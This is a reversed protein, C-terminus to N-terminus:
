RISSFKLTNSKARSVSSTAAISARSSPALPATVQFGTPSGQLTHNHLLKTTSLVCSSMDEENIASHSTEFDLLLHFASSAPPTTLTILCSPLARATVLGGNIFVGGVGGRARRRCRHHLRGGRRAARERPTKEGERKEEQEDVQRECLRGRKNETIAVITISGPFHRDVGDVGLNYVVLNQVDRDEAVCSCLDDVKVGTETHKSTM